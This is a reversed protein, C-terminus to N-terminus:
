YSYNLGIFGRHRTFHRNNLDSDLRDLSYGTEASLGEAIEYAFTLGSTWMQDVRGDNVGGAFANNQFQFVLRGSLPGFLAAQMSGFVATTEMDLTLLGSGATTSVDTGAREHKM